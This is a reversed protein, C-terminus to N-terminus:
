LKGVLHNDKKCYVEIIAKKGNSRVKYHFDEDNDKNLKKAIQFAKKPELISYEEINMM